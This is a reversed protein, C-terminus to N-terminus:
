WDNRQTFLGGQDAVGNRGPLHVYIKILTKQELDPITVCLYDWIAEAPVYRLIDANKKSLLKIRAELFGKVLDNAEVEGNDHVSVVEKKDVSVTFVGKRFGIYANHKEATIEVQQEDAVLHIFLFKAGNKEPWTNPAHIEYVIM